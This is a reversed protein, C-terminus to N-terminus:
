YEVLSVIPVDPLNKRGQLDRLEIIFGFGVLECGIKEVLKATAGATGGTAILDDVILVRSQPHLADQHVELCDKGYELEYEISHVAAPLKGPKRVPIFGAGLQYALPTGFMFGRSEMGIVYDAKLGADLIKQTFLDITYRLGQPDRLLTTIDRFLIGSKPFDPIDRILSKLDM